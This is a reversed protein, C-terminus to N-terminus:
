ESLVFAVFRLGCAAAEVVFHWCDPRCFFLEGYFALLLRPDIDRIQGSRSDIDQQGETNYGVGM